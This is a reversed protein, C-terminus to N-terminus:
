SVDAEYKIAAAFLLAANEENIGDKILKQCQLQLENECYSTALDLLGIYRFFM